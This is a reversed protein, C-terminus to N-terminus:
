RELSEVYHVGREALRQLVFEVCAPHRGLYEPPTIGPEGYLGTALLRAVATATYGTTRAMSHVGSAPDLRDFLDWVLRAPAGDLEGEVIVKMVTIDAEGAPLQWMPFLLQATLDVPRVPVGRVLIEDERFFGSERLVRIKEIHGPYRLTKEKMNPLDLTTALTRLGDTNFAELTGVGPFELLEPDTLAPRVVTKGNEVYRAPRTYEAIVDIPSFVATYEYPWRRVEPLGGVYTLATHANDLRQVGHMTLLNSMGPAVGCDIVVTVGERRALADLTFPDEEFFAIDVAPVGAEIIAELTAFGMPGPVASIALDFRGALETVTAPDSLDHRETQLRSHRQALQDLVGQRVDVVTVEFDRDDALDLAMPGGVLGAGLIVTRM